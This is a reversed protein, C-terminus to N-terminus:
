ATPSQQEPPLLVHLTLGQPSSTFFMHGRLGRVRERMLALGIGEADAADSFGKGNDTIEIELNKDIRRTAIVVRSAGSHKLANTVAEQLIRYCNISWNEPFFNELAALDHQIEVRSLTAASQLMDEVALALGVKKMHSPTLRRSIERAKRLTESIPELLLKENEPTRLNKDDLFRLLNLKTLVLSQGLVDHLESSIEARETESIAILRQSLELIRESQEKRETIDLITGTYRKPTGDAARAVIRGRALIWVWRGTKHRMRYEQEMRDALGNIHDALAQQMRDVDDAHLHTWLDAAKNVILEGQDYGLIEAFRANFFTEGTVMDTDILGLQAGTLALEMRERASELEAEARMKETVDTQIAVFHTVAGAENSVPAINLSSYFVKGSKDYNRLVFDGGEFRKLAERLRRLDEQDNDGRHLFRCNKGIVEHAAFGTIKTFAANVYTVPMDPLRADSIIVGSASSNMAHEQLRLRQLQQLNRERQLYVETIELFSAVAGNQTGGAARIPAASVSLWKTTGDPFVIGHEFGTVTQGQQLARSLPLVEVPLPQFNLDIQKWYDAQQYYRGTVKDRQLELIQAASDNALTIEGTASVVVIGNIQSEIVSQLFMEREVVEIELKKRETIDQCTGFAKQPNGAEDFVIGWREEVFKTSGDTAVIRHVISHREPSQLSERFAQDVAARDDLHVFSLFAEHTAAFSQPNLGFIRYTEHSWNVALTKLDTEWSGIKAVEQAARLRQENESLARASERAAARVRAERVEREVAPGLRKLSSKMIYDVAGARMLEVAVGEGIAQSVIIFPIDKGTRSLIELATIANFQPLRFDSIVIDWPQELAKNLEASTEVRLSRVAFGQSVIHHEILAADSISDEIIIVALEKPMSNM